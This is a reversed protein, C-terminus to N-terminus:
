LSRGVLSTVDVKGQRQTRRRERGDRGALMLCCGAQRRRRQSKKGVRWGGQPACEYLVALGQVHPISGSQVSGVMDYGFLGRLVDHVASAQSAGTGDRVEYVRMHWM